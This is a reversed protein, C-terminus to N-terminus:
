SQITIRIYTSINCMPAYHEPIEYFCYILKKKLIDKKGSVGATYLSSYLHANLVAYKHPANFTTM